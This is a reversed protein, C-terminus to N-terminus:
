TKNVMIALNDLTQRDFYNLEGIDNIFEVVDYNSFDNKGAVGTLSAIFKVDANEATEADIVSDGVYIVDEKDISLQSLVSEIGEKDPKHNRVDEGGIILSFYNLIKERRLINEIRYRFKTSVIGLKIGCPEFRRNKQPVNKTYFLLIM